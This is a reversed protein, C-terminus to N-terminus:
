FCSTGAGGMNGISFSELGEKGIFYRGQSFYWFAPISFLSLMLFMNGVFGLFDFYANM